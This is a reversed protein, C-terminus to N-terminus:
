DGCDCIINERWGQGHIRGELDKAIVVISGTDETNTGSEYDKQLLGAKERSEDARVLRLQLFHGRSARLRVM